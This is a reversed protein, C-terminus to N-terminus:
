AAPGARNIAAISPAGNHIPKPMTATHRNRIPRHNSFRKASLWQITQLAPTLKAPGPLLHGWTLFRPLHAWRPAPRQRQGGVYNPRSAALLEFCLSFLRTLAFATVRTTRGNTSCNQNLKATTFPEGPDLGEFVDAALGARPYAMRDQRPLGPLSIPRRSGMGSAAPTAPRFAHARHVLPARMPPLFPLDADGRRWGAPAGGAQHLCIRTGRLTPAARCLRPRAHWRLPVAGRCLSL